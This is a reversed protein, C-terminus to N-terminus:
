RQYSVDTDRYHNLHYQPLTDIGCRGGMSLRFSRDAKYTRLSDKKRIPYLDSSKIDKTNALQFYGAAIRKGRIYFVPWQKVVEVVDKIEVPYVTKDENFYKECFEIDLSVRNAGMVRTESKYPEKNLKKCLDDFFLTDYVMDADAFIMWDSNSEESQKRRAFSRNKVENESLITEKINLGKEKFFSCVDETNPNGEKEMYSINILLDPVVGEQQLLSSLMWCLRHQYSYCNIAIEILM